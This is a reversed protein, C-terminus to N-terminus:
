GCHFSDLLNSPDSSIPARAKLERLAEEVTRRQRELDAERAELEGRLQEELEDVEELRRQIAAEMNDLKEARRALEEREEALETERQELGALRAALEAKERNLDMERTVLNAAAKAELGAVDERSQRILELQRAVHANFRSVEHRLWDAHQAANDATIAV